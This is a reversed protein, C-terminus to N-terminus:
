SAATLVGAAALAAAYAVSWVPALRRAYMVSIPMAMLAAVTVGTPIMRALLVGTAM